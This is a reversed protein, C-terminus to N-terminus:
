ARKRWRLAGGLGLLGIGFLALTGPEPVQSFTQDIFSIDSVADGATSQVRIDKKVFISAVDSTLDTAATLVLPPNTVQIQGLVTALSSDTFVTETVASASMRPTGTGNFVMHVDSFLFPATTAASYTILIDESSRSTSASIDAQFEIGVLGGITIAVVSIGSCSFPTTGSNTAPDTVISCTFNSFTKDGNTITLAATTIPTAQAVTALSVLAGAVVGSIIHKNM